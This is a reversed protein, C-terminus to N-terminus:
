RASRKSKKPTKKPREPDRLGSRIAEKIKDCDTHQSKVLLDAADCSNLQRQLKKMKATTGFWVLAVVDGDGLDITMWSVHEAARQIVEERVAASVEEYADRHRKKKM